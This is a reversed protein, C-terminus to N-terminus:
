PDHQISLESPKEQAIRQLETALDDRGEMTKEGIVNWRINDAVSRLVFKLDGKALAITLNQVFINKPSNGCDDSTIVKTM